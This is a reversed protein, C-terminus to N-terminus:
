WHRGMLIEKDKRIRVADLSAGIFVFSWILGGLSSMAFMTMEAMNSVFLTFLMALGIYAKRKLM